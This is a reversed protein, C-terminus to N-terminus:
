GRRRGSSGSYGYRKDRQLRVRVAEYGRDGTRSGRVARCVDQRVRGERGEVWVPQVLEPEERGACGTVRVEHLDGGGVDEFQSPDDGYVPVDEMVLGAWGEHVVCCAADEFREDQRNGVLCSGFVRGFSTGRADTAVQM